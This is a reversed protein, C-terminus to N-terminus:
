FGSKQEGREYGCWLHGLFVNSFETRGARHNANQWGLAVRGFGLHHVPKLISKLEVQRRVLGQRLFENVREPLRLIRKYETCQRWFGRARLDLLRNVLIFSGM